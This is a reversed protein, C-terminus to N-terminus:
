PRELPASLILVFMLGEQAAPQSRGWQRTLNDHSFARQYLGNASSQNAHSCIVDCKDPFWDASHHAVRGVIGRHTRHHDDVTPAANLEPDRAEASANYSDPRDAHQPASGDSCASPSGLLLHGLHTHVSGHPGLDFASSAAERPRVRRSPPTWSTPSM